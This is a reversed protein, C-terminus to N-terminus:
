GKKQYAIPYSVSKQEPDKPLFRIHGDELIVLGTSGRVSKDRLLMTVLKDNLVPGGGRALCDKWLTFHCGDRWASCGYAKDSM